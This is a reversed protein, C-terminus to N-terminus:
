EFDVSCNTSETVEIHRHCKLRCVNHRLVLIPCVIRSVTDDEARDMVPHEVRVADADVRIIEGDHWAFTPVQPTQSYRAGREGM